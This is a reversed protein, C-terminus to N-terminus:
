ILIVVKLLLMKSLMLTHQLLHIEEYLQHIKVVYM